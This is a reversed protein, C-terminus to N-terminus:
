DNTNILVTIGEIDAHVKTGAVGDFVDIIPTAGVTNGAIAELIAKMVVKANNDTTTAVVIVDPNDDKADDASSGQTNAMPTFFLSFADEDATIAGTVAATGMVMGRLASVPYVISGDSDDDDAIATVKRFYLYKEMAM